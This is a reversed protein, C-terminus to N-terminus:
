NRIFELSSSHNVGVTAAGSATVGFVTGTVNASSNDSRQHIRTTFAGITIEEGLALVTAPDILDCEARGRFSKGVGQGSRHEQRIAPKLQVDKPFGPAGTLDQKRGVQDGPM